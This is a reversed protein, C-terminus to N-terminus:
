QTSAHPTASAPSETKNRTKAEELARGLLGAPAEASAGEVRTAETEDQITEYEAEIAAEQGRAAIAELDADSLQRLDTVTQQDQHKGVLVAIVRVLCKSRSPSLAASGCRRLPM